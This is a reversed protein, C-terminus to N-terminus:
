NYRPFGELELMDALLTDVRGCNLKGAHITSLLERVNLVMTQWIQGCFHDSEGIGDDFEKRHNDAMDALALIMPVLPSYFKQNFDPKAHWTKLHYDEEMYMGKDGETNAKYMAARSSEISDAILQNHTKM